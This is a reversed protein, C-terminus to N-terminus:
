PTKYTIVAAEPNLPTSWSFAKLAYTGDGLEVTEGNEVYELIEPVGNYLGYLVATEGRWVAGDALRHLVLDDRFLGSFPTNCSKFFAIGGSPLFLQFGGNKYTADADPSLVMTVVAPESLTESFTVAEGEGNVFLMYTEGAVAYVHKWTRGGYTGFAETFGEYLAERDM